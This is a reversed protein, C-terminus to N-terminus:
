PDIDTATQERKTGPREASAGPDRRDGPRGFSSNVQSPDFPEGLLKEFTARQRRTLVKLVATVAQEQIADTRDRISEFEKRAENQRQQRAKREAETLPPQPTQDSDDPNASKQDPRANLLRGGPRSSEAEPRPAAGRRAAMLSMQTIWVTMQANRSIAIRREVEVQQTPSLNVAKVVDPRVLANVGEMQLSIQTLRKRQAKDLIKNIGSENEQLLQGVQSMLGTFREIRTTVPVNPNQFPDADEGQERRQDRLNRGFEQGRKQMSETWDRLKQKQEDTLKLEEQVPPMMILASKALGWQGMAGGISGWGSFRNFRAPDGFLTPRPTESPTPDTKADPAPKSPDPAAETATEASQASTDTDAPEQGVTPWPAVLLALAM